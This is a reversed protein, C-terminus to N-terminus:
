PTEITNANDIPKCSARFEYGLASFVDSLTRITMNASGDLLKTIYGKSRGLRRALESRSVGKESMVQCILETTDLIAKEQNWIRRGEESNVIGDKFPTSSM